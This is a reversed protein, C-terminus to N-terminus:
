VSFSLSLLVRSLLLDSHWQDKEISISGSTFANCIQNGMLGQDTKKPCLVVKSLLLDSNLLSGFLQFEAICAGSNQSRHSQSSLFEELVNEAGRIIEEANEIYYEVEKREMGACCTILMM